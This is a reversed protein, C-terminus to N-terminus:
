ASAVSNHGEAHDVPLRVSQSLRLSQWYESEERLPLSHAYEHLHESWSKFSSTKAPLRVAEGVELAEYARHLDELLIRWSVGDVVLHHIILLVRQEEGGLEFLGVRVVPGESLNLSAQLRNATARLAAGRDGTTVESLDIVELPVQGDWPASEQWRQAGERGFR